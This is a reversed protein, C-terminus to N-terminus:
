ERLLLHEVQHELGFGNGDEEVWGMRVEKLIAMM